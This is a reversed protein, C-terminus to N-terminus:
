RPGWGDGVPLAPMPRGNRLWGWRIRVLDRLMRAADIGPRVKSGDAHNWAVPVERLEFRRHALELLEVDFAFGTLTLERFLVRAVPGRFLKFGCQTDRIAAVVRFGLARVALHFGRGQLRRLLPQRRLVEGPAARSGIAVDAGEALAAELRELEEIPTSLDADSFLVAGGRSALVGTRVAAGKGANQPMALLRVCPHDGTVRAVTERTADRSGDDVVILEYGNRRADLYRTVRELTAGIRREENYAPIIISLAPQPVDSSMMVARGSCGINRHAARAAGVVQVM